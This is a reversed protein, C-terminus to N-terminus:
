FSKWLGVRYQTDNTPQGAPFTTYGNFGGASVNVWSTKSLDYKVGVATYTISDAAPTTGSKYAYDLGLTIKGLPVAVSAVITPTVAGPTPFAASSTQMWGFGVKAVGADYSVGLDDKANDAFTAAGQISANYWTHGYAVALPGAAYKIALNTGTLYGNAATNTIAPSSTNATNQEYQSYAGEVTFGSFSPSAYKIGKVNSHATLSKYATATSDTANPLSVAGSFQEANNGAEVSRLTVAGFSGKTVLTLDKRTDAGNRTAGLDTGISATLSMGGGLDESSTFVLFLDPIGFGASDKAGSANKEFSMGALGTLTVQAFSAGSAALVALAVLTKKM